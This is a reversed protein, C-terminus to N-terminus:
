LSFAALLTNHFNSVADSESEVYPNVYAPSPAEWCKPKKRPATDVLDNLPLSLRQPKFDKAPIESDEQDDEAFFSSLQPTM